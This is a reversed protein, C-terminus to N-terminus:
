ECSGGSSSGSGAGLGPSPVEQSLARSCEQPSVNFAQCITNKFQEPSRPNVSVVQDNIVITPSGRVGYQENLDAHIDFKPFQGSLWSARDNYNKTINFEGDARAICSSIRSQDIGAQLLCGQFDGERVFCNLYDDYKEKEEKQICYQRVNEDVEVKEHMAYNVFYVGMDAKEKLLDYVPLFMKQAQLGYPCYTMVFLKVDPRDQKPIEQPVEQEEPIESTVSLDIAEPFFLKGNKSVYSTFEQESIKLQLKYLGNEETIATLSATIGEGLIEENIYKLTREGAEKATLTGRFAIGTSNEYYYFLGIGASLGVLFIILFPILNKTLNTM